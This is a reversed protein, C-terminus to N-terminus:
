AEILCPGGIATFLGRMGTRFQMRLLIYSAVASEGLNEINKVACGSMEMAILSM